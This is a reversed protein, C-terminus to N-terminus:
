ELVLIKSFCEGLSKSEFILRDILKECKSKATTKIADNSSSIEIDDKQQSVTQEKVTENLRSIFKEFNLSSDIYTDIDKFNNLNKEYNEHQISTIHQKLNDYRQKCCECYGAQKRKQQQAAPTQILKLQNSAGNLTSTTRQILTHKIQQINITATTAQQQQLQIRSSTNQQECISQSQQNTHTQTNKANGQVINTQNNSSSSVNSDKARFLFLVFSM